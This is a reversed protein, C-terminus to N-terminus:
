DEEKWVVEGDSLCCDGDGPAGKGRLKAPVGEKIHLREDEMGKNEQREKEGRINNDMSILTIQILVEERPNAMCDKM